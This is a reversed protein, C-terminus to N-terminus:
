NFHTDLFVHSKELLSIFNAKEKSYDIKETLKEEVNENRMVREKLELTDLFDNLRDDLVKQDELLWFEKEFIYSFVTGHFSEVLSYECGSMLTLFAIPGAHEYVKFGYEKEKGDVWRSPNIVYVPLGTKQSIDKVINNKTKNAYNYSYYFIYKEKPQIDVQILKSWEDKSLLLTPDACVEVEENLEAKFKEKASRERVSVAEFCELQLGKEIMDKLKGCKQDGLSAAYAIRKSKSCWNLFFAEDFDQMYVNWIQDSGCVVVEFKGDLDSLQEQSYYKKETLVLNNARFDQYDKKQKILKSYRIFQGIFKKPKKIYSPHIIRYMKESVITTFDIVQVNHGKDQLIKMLAYSQLLSGCNDSASLTIIGVNM